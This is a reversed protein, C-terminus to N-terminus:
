LRCIAYCAIDGFPQQDGLASLYLAYLFHKFVHEPDVGLVHEDAKAYCADTEIGEARENTLAQLM